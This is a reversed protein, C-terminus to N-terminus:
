RADFTFPATYISKGDDFQLWMKYLGKSLPPARLAYECCISRAAAGDIDAYALTSTNVLIARAWAVHYPAVGSSHPDRNIDVTITQPRMAHLRTQDLLVDYSGERVRVSPGKVTTTLNRAAPGSQLVFRFVQEPLGTVTSAVYAYYRHRRDLSVHIAFSGDVGSGKACRICRNRVLQPHVHSFAGFDDRVLIVHVPDGETLEYCPRASPPALNGAHCPAIPQRSGPLYQTVVLDSGAVLTLRSAIQPKGQALAYQGAQQVIAAHAICVTMACAIAAVVGRTARRDM